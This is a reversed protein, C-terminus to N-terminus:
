DKAESRALVARWLRVAHLQHVADDARDDENPEGLFEALTPFQKTDCRMLLATQHALWGRRRFYGRRALFFTKPTFGWFEAM